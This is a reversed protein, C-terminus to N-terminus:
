TRARQIKIMQVVANCAAVCHVTLSLDFTFLFTIVEARITATAHIRQAVLLHPDLRIVVNRSLKKLM